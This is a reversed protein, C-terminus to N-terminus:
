RTITGINCLTSKDCRYFYVLEMKRALCRGNNDSCSCSGIRSELRTDRYGEVFQNWTVAHVDSIRPKGM